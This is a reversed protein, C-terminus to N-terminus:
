SAAMRRSRWASRATSPHASRRAATAASPPGVGNGAVTTITAVGAAGPSVKRVRSNSTDAILYGGDPTFAVGSPDFLQAQTALGGDGASGGVGTGVVTTIIGSPSVERIRNNDTDAILYSGDARTAVDSPFNIQAIIAGDGDGGYAAAGNGAVSTITGGPSVQRVRNNNSDTILISGDPLVATGNPANLQANTALGGDGGFGQTGSGAVTSIVGSPSVRRVRSNGQDTILYGGDALATVATPVSVQATAAAIGDGNYGATGTGAATFIDGQAALAMGGGVALVAILALTAVRALRRSAGRRM